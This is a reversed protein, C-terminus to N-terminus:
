ALGWIFHIQYLYFVLYAGIMMIYIIKKSERTFMYEIEWPLLIYGYLSFYIPLRGIFVGSTFMSVIYLGVSAICMNTCINIVPDNKERIYSIGILSLITPVSYVLVRLFNTGNDEWEKWDSVVNKYQTEELLTDLITTFQEVYSITVIVAFIFFLTKKNWAKGQVIFVFPIVLLASGHILSALYIIAIAKVYKKNLIFEFALLTVAVATFQRMGNFLWSVYDTSAIFLFFSVLFAISYKRFLWILVGIQFVGFIFLYVEVKEGVICKTLISIFYFGEDKNITQMYASIEGFSMPMEQYTEIYAWTDAISGRWGTWIMLPVALVIAWMPRYRYVKKECVIEQRQGNLFISLIGWIAIWLLILYYNSM